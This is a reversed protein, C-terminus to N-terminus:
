KKTNTKNNLIEQNQGGSRTRAPKQNQIEGKQIKQTHGMAQVKIIFRGAVNIINNHNNYKNQIVKEVQQQRLIAALLPLKPCLPLPTAPRPIFLTTYNLLCFANRKWTDKRLSWIDKKSFQRSM